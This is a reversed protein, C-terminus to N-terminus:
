EVGYFAINAYPVCIRKPYQPVKVWIGHAGEELVAKNAKESISQLVLPGVQVGIHCRVEVVKPTAM